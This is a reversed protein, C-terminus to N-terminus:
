TKWKHLANKKTQGCDKRNKQPIKKFNQFNEKKQIQM